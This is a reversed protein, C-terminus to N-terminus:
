AGPISAPGAPGADGGTVPARHRPQATGGPRGGPRGDGEQVGALRAPTRGRAIEAKVKLDDLAKVPPFGRGPRASRNRSGRTATRQAEAIQAKIKPDDLAKLSALRATREIERTDIQALKALKSPERTPNWRTQGSVRYRISRQRAQAKFEPSDLMATAKRAKELAHDVTRELRAREAPSPEDRDDTMVTYHKSPIGFGVRAPLSHGDSPRRARDDVGSGPPPATLRLQRPCAPEPAPVALVPPTPQRRRIQARARCASPPSPRGNSAHQRRRARRRRLSQRFLPDRPATPPAIVATAEGNIACTAVHLPPPPASWAWPSPPQTCPPRLDEHRAQRRAQTRDPADTEGGSLTQRLPGGARPLAGRPRHPTWPNPWPWSAEPRLARESCMAKSALPTAPWAERTRRIEAKILHTAPHWAIPLSEGIESLFISRTTAGCPTPSNM